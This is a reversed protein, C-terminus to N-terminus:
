LTKFTNNNNSVSDIDGMVSPVRNKSEINIKSAQNKKLLNIQRFNQEIADKLQQFSSLCGGISLNCTNSRYNGISKASNIGFCLPLSVIEQIIDPLGKKDATPMEGKVTIDLVLQYIL